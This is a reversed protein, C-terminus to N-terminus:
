AFSYVLCFWDSEALCIDVFKINVNVFENASREMCLESNSIQLLSKKTSLVTIFLRSSAATDDTILNLKSILGDPLMMQQMPANLQRLDTAINALARRKKTRSKRM